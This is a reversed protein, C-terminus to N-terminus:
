KSSAKRKEVKEREVCERCIIRDNRNGSKSTARHLDICALLMVNNCTMCPASVNGVVKKLRASKAGCTRENPCMCRIENAKEVIHGLSKGVADNSETVERIAITVPAAVASDNNRRSSKSVESESDSDVMKKFGTASEAVNSSDLFSLDVEYQNKITAITEESDSDEDKKHQFLKRKQTYLIQSSPKEIAKGEVCSSCKINCCNRCCMTDSCCKAFYIESTSAYVSPCKDNSCRKGVLEKKANQAVRRSM